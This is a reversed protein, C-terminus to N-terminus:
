VQTEDMEEIRQKGPITPSEHSQISPLRWLLQDLRGTNSQTARSDENVRTWRHIKMTRLREM